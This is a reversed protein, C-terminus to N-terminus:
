TVESAPESTESDSLEEIMAEVKRVVEEFQGRLLQHARKHGYPTFAIAGLEGQTLGGGKALAQLEKWQKLTIKEEPMMAEREDVLNQIVAEESVDVRVEFDWVGEWIRSEEPENPAIANVFVAVEQIRKFFKKAPRKNGFAVFAAIAEGDQDREVRVFEHVDEILSLIKDPQPDIECIPAMSWMPNNAPVEEWLLCRDYLLNAGGDKLASGIEVDPEPDPDPAAEILEVFNKMQYWPEGNELELQFLADLKEGIIVATQNVKVGSTIRVKDGLRLDSHIYALAKKPETEQPKETEPQTSPPEEDNLDGDKEVCSEEKQNDPEPESEIEPESESEIEPEPGPEVEPESEVEPEFNSNFVERIEELVASHFQRPILGKVYRAEELFNEVQTHASKLYNLEEKAQKTEAELRELKETVIQIRDALIM